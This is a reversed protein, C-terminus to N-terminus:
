NLFFLYYGTKEDTTTDKFSIKNFILIIAVLVYPWLSSDNCNKWLDYDQILFIIGYVIYSIIGSIFSLILCATTSYILCEKLNNDPNKPM